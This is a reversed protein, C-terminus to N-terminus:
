INLLIKTERVSETEQASRKVPQPPDSVGVVLPEFAVEVLWVEDVVVVVVVLVGAVVVVVLVGADVVVVVVVLLPSFIPTASHSSKMVFYSAQM